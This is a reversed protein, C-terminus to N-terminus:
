RHRWSAGLEIGIRFTLEDVVDDELGAPFMALFDSNDISGASWVAADSVRFIPFHDFSGGSSKHGGADARPYPRSREAWSNPIQCDCEVGDRKAPAM